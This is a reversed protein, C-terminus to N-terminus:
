PRREQASYGSEIEELLQDIDAIPYNHRVAGRVADLKRGIDSQPERHRAASLAQRVWEAVTLHRARATRQIERYEADPLLVQLRKTM